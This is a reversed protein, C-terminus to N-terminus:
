REELYREKEKERAVRTGIVRVKGNRVIFYSTLIRNLNSKGVCLFRVELARNSVIILKLPDDFISEAEKNSIGHKIVSKKRNGDDWDFDLPPMNTVFIYKLDNFFVSV